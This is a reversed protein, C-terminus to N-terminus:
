LAASYRLWIENDKDADIVSAQVADALYDNWFSLNQLAGGKPAANGKAHPSSWSVM